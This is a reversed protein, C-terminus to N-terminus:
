EQGAQGLDEAVAINALTQVISLFVPRSPCASLCARNYITFPNDLAVFEDM